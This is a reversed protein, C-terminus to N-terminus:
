ARFLARYSLHRRIGYALMFLLACVGLLVLGAGYGHSLEARNTYQNSIYYIYFPLAEFQSLLSSPVGATAVVGTLLIVATDEACRGISLIMGSGIGSLAQPILVHVINQLKSAGLALATTRIGPPLEELSTQTSRVIYPLVLVALSLASILLCPACADLFHNHLFVALSFGFLGIVISPIGALIDFSIGLLRKMGPGAYEALYIGSCVGVPLALAASLVVLCLTGVVAPFIGEFVRARGLIAELPDTRGFVLETGLSPLGKIVLYGLFISVSLCLVFTMAWSFVVVTKEVFGHIM